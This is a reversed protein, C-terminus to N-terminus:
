VLKNKVVNQVFGMFLPSPKLLRTKYEPHFQCAVYFPHQDRPLEVIIADDRSVGDKGSVVLGM